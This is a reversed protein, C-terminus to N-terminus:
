RYVAKNPLLRVEECKPSFNQFNAVEYARLSIRLWEEQRYRRRMVHQHSRLKVINASLKDNFCHFPTNSLVIATRTTIKETEHLALTTNFHYYKPLNAPIAAYIWRYRSWCNFSPHSSKADMMWSSLFIKTCCLPSIWLLWQHAESTNTDNLSSYSNNTDNLSSHSVNLEELQYFALQSVTVNEVHM